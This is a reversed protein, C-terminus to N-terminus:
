PNGAMRGLAEQARKGAATGALEPVCAYQLHLREGGPNGVVRYFDAIRWHREARWERLRTLTEGAATAFEPREPNTKLYDALERSAMEMQDLDYDPGQLGAAISMAFRYRAYPYWESEPYSRILDRFREEAMSWNEAEFELDGLVKLADPVRNSDPHRTRLHELVIRADRHDSWWLFTHDRQVLTAGIRWELEAIRVRLDSHPYLDPFPRTIDYAAMPAGTALLAAAHVVDRRDRLRLPLSEPAVTAVEALAAEPHEGRLAQEARQLVAEPDPLQTPAGACAALACCLGWRVLSVM